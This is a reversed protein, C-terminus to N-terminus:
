NNDGIKQLGQEVPYQTRLQTLYSAIIAQATNQTIMQKAQPILTDINEPHKVADIAILTPQQTDKLLVYVPKNNTPKALLIQQLDHASFQSQLQAISLTSPSSWAINTHPAAQNLSDFIQKAFNKVRQQAQELTYDQKVKQRVENLEPLRKPRVKSARVVWVTNNDINIIDSNLHKNLVDDSFLATKLAEPIDQTDETVWENHNQIPLNLAKAATELENPYNFTLDILKERLKPFNQQAKRQQLKERLGAKVSDFSISKENMNEYAQHLEQDSIPEKSALDPISLSLYQYQVGLNEEYKTKNAEYYQNLDQDTPTIGAMFDETRLISTRIIRSSQLTNILQRAQEDSVLTGTQILSIVSQVALQKRLERILQDEPLANQQLFTQFKANSFKGNEQFSPDDMIIRKIETLSLNVNLDDAGQQLYAQQLLGEYLTQRNIEPSNLTRIQQRAENLDYESVKHEGVKAIYDHGSPLLTSAGFGVFTLAVLGLTIQSATKYKEIINFM